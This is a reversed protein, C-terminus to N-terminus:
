QLFSFLPRRCAKRRDLRTPRKTTIIPSCRLSTICWKDFKDLQALPSPHHRMDEVESNCQKEWCAQAFGGQWKTWSLVDLHEPAHSGSSSTGTWPTPRTSGVMFRPIYNSRLWHAHSPPPKLEEITEMRSFPIMIGLSWYTACPNFWGSFAGRLVMCCLKRAVFNAELGLPLAVTFCWSTRVIEGCDM